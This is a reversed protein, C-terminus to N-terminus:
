KDDLPQYMWVKRTKRGFDSAQEHTERYIDVTMKNYRKLIWDAPKDEVIYEGYGDVWIVSGRPFVSWDAAVTRGARPITGSATRPNESAWKGCCIECSCYATIQCEGVLVWSPDKETRKPVEEVALGPKLLMPLTYFPSEESVTRRIIREAEESYAAQGAQLNNKVASAGSTTGTFGSFAASLQGKAQANVSLDFGAWLYASGLICLCSLAICILKSFWENLM